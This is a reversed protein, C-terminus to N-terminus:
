VLLIAIFIGSVIGLCRYLKKKGDLDKRMENMKLELQIGLLEIHKIQLEADVNGLYNGLEKLQEKQQKPIKVNILYEDITEKWVQGFYGDSKKELRQYLQRMWVDYPTRASRSINRFAESLFARSYKIESQLQYLLQRIYHLENYQADLDRAMRIGVLSTATIVLISGTVKIM